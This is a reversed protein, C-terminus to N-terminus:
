ANFTKQSKPRYVFNNRSSLGMDLGVASGSSVTVVRSGIHRSLMPLLKLTLAMHALHNVAFQIELGQKSLTRPPAMLGANNILLDLSRYKSM